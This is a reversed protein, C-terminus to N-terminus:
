PSDYEFVDVTVKRGNKKFYLDELKKMDNATRGKIKKFGFTQIDKLEILCKMFKDSIQLNRLHLSKLKLNSNALNCFIDDSFKQNPGELSLQQIANFKAICNFDIDGVNTKTLHLYLDESKSGNFDCLIGERLKVNKLNIYELSTLDCNNLYDFFSETLNENEINIHSLNPLACIKKLDDELISTKPYATVVSYFYKVTNIKVYYGRNQLEQAILNYEIKEKASSKNSSKCGFFVFVIILFFKTLIFKM